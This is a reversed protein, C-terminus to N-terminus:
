AIIELPGSTGIRQESTPRCSSFHRHLLPPSLSLVQEM